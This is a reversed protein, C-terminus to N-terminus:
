PEWLPLGKAFLINDLGRHQSSSCSFRFLKLVQFLKLLWSLGFSRFLNAFLKFVKSCNSLAPMAAEDTTLIALTTLKTLTEYANHAEHTKYFLLSGM